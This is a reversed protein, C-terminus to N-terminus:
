AGAGGARRAAEAGGLAQGEGDGFLDGVWLAGSKPVGYVRGKEDHQFLSAADAERVAEARVAAAEGRNDDGDSAGDGAGQAAGATFSAWFRPFPYTCLPTSNPWPSSPPAFRRSCSCPRTACHRRSSRECGRRQLVRDFCAALATGHYGMRTVFQFSLYPLFDTNWFYLDNLPM